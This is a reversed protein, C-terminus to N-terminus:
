DTSSLAWTTGTRKGGDYAYLVVEKGATIWSTGDCLNKSDLGIFWDPSPALMAISSIYSADGNLTLTCNSTGDVSTVSGLTCYDAVSGATKLATLETKLVTTKGETAVDTAGTGLPLGTRWLTYTSKHGAVVM